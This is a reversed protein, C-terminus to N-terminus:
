VYGRMAAEISEVNKKQLKNYNKHKVFIPGLWGDEHTFCMCWAMNKPFTYFDYKYNSTCKPKYKTVGVEINGKRPEALVYYYISEHTDFDSEAKELTSTGIISEWAYKNSRKVDLEPCFTAKWEQFISLSNSQDLLEFEEVGIDSWFSRKNM